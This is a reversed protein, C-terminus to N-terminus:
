KYYYHGSRQTEWIGVIRNERKCHMILKACGWHFAREMTDVQLVAAVVDRLCVLGSEHGDGVDHRSDASEEHQRQTEHHALPAEGAAEVWVPVKSVVYREKLSPPSSPSLLLRLPRCKFLHITTFPTYMTVFHQHQQFLAKLLNKKEPFYYTFYLVHQCVTFVCHVTSCQVWIPSCLIVLAMVLRFSLCSFTSTM